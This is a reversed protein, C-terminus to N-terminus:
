DVNANCVLNAEAEVLVSRFGKEFKLAFVFCFCFFIGHM